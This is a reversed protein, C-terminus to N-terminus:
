QDRLNYHASGFWSGPKNAWKFQQDKICWSPVVRDIASSWLKHIYRVLQTLGWHRGEATAPVDGERHGHQRDADHLGRHRHRDDRQGGGGPLRVLPGGPGEDGDCPDWTLYTRFTCCESFDSAAVLVKKLSLKWIEGWSQNNPPKGFTEIYLKLFELWTM